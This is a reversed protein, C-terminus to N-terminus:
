AAAGSNDSEWATAEWDVIKEQLCPGHPRQRRRMHRPQPLPFFEHLDQEANRRGLRRVEEAVGEDALSPAAEEGAVDEAAAVAGQM